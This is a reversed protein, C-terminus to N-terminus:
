LHPLRPTSHTCTTLTRSSPPFPPAAPHAVGALQTVGAWAVEAWSGVGRADEGLGGEGQRGASGGGRAGQADVRGAEGQRCFEGGGGQADGRGEGEAQLADGQGRSLMEGEALLVDVDVVQAHPLNVLSDGLGLKGAAGLLPGVQGGTWHGVCGPLFQLYPVSSSTFSPVTCLPKTSHLITCHM